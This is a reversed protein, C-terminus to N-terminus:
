RFNASSETSPWRNLDQISVRSPKHLSLFVDSRHRILRERFEETNLFTIKVGAHCLLEALKLMSNVHGLAALPWILVHPYSVSNRDQLQEM